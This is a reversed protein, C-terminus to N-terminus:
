GLELLGTYLGGSDEYSVVNLMWTSVSRLWSSEMISNAEGSCPVCERIM